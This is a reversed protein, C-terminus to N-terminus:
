NKGAFLKMDPQLFYKELAGTWDNEKNDDVVIDNIGNYINEVGDAKCEIVNYMINNTVNVNNINKESKFSTNFKKYDRLCNEEEEVEIVYKNLEDNLDIDQSDDSNNSTIFVDYQVENPVEELNQYSNQCLLLIKKHRKYKQLIKTFMQSIEGQNLRINTLRAILQARDMISFGVDQVNNYHIDYNNEYQLDQQIMIENMFHLGEKTAQEGTSLQSSVKELNSMQTSLMKIENINYNIYSTLHSKLQNGQLNLTTMQSLSENMLYRLDKDLKEERENLSMLQKIIDKNIKSEYFIDLIKKLSLKHHKNKLKNQFKLFNKTFVKFDLLFSDLEYNLNPNM